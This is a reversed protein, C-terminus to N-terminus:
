KSRISDKESSKSSAKSLKENRFEKMHDIKRKMGEIDPYQIKKREVSIVSFLVWWFM